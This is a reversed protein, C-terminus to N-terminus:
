RPVLYTGLFYDQLGQKPNLLAVVIGALYAACLSVGFVVLALMGVTPHGLRGALLVLVSLGTALLLPAWWVVVARLFSLWRTAENGKRDVLAIGFLRLLLGGPIMVALVIGFTGLIGLILVLGTLPPGLVDEWAPSAIKKRTRELHPALEKEAMAVDAESPHPHHALAEAILRRHRDQLAPSTITPPMIALAEDSLAARHRGVLYTELRDREDAKAKDGAALTEPSESRNSRGAIQATLAGIRYGLSYGTKAASLSDLRGLCANVLAPEPHAKKWASSLTNVILFFGLLALVPAVCPLLPAGRRGRSVAAPRVQLTAVTAELDDFSAFGAVGLKQLFAAAHLPLPAKAAAEGLAALFTQASALDCGGSGFAPQRPGDSRPGDFDLLRAHGRSTIWVRELALLPSPLNEASAARVEEALDLLWRRVTAWDHRKQLAVALPEGEPAEYVDWADWEGRFGALWRLRGARALDRRADSVPPGPASVMIWVPRRLMEDFGLLLREAGDERLTGRVAYPGVKGDARIPAEGSLEVTPVETPVADVRVIVRTGSVLEHLGAFGNRRRVSAFLIITGLGWIVTGLLGGRGTSTDLGLLPVLFSPVSGPLSYVAARLLAVWPGPRGMGPRVVKLGCLRKGVSAGGFGELVAFYVLSVFQSALEVRVSTAPFGWQTVAPMLFLMGFMAFLTEDILGAALRLGLTAPAPAASTFPELAARLSSYDQYRRIPDKELCRLVIRELDRPIAKCLQRPPTPAKELVAALMKGLQGEDMPAKGTLLFYLTAGVAYIDSRVDLTDCRVQEPSAYAPTGMFSGTMTLHSEQRALTSVSLGFDGVKVTGDTDVFCNAPKVDRHLVGIAQAAELGAVVQLIADVARAPPLAGERAVVDKLTGGALLEMTIAPTGDIEESGFVYVSNPHNVSAALRGERLFRARETPDGFGRRLVKLAVRRSSEVQEAEWVEGMGGMGLLRKLLYPGFRTGEALASAVGRQEAVRASDLTPSESPNLGQTPQDEDSQSM